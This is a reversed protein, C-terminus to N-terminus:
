SEGTESWNRIIIECVFVLEYIFKNVIVEYYKKEYDNKAQKLKLRYEDILRLYRDIGNRSRIIM